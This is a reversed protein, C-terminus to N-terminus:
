YISNEPRTQDLQKVINPGVAVAFLHFDKCSSQLNVVAILGIIVPKLHNDSTTVLIQTLINTGISTRISVLM